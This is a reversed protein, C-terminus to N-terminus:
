KVVVIGTTGPNYRDAYHYTGPATFLVSVTSPDAYPFGGGTFSPTGVSVLDHLDYDFELTWTMRRGVPITDVAPNSGNQSSIFALGSSTRLVVDFTAEEITLKFDASAGVGPLAARVAANGLAGTPTLSSYSLGEPNTAGGMTLFAVPGNRITWTVAQGQVPNGYHDKVVAVLSAPHNVPFTQGNGNYAEIAVAPGPAALANFHVLSAPVGRITADAEVRGAVTGLTWAASAVGDKDTISQTPTLSGATTHWNVTVGVKPVGASDVKVRLPLPLGTGVLGAQGNTAAVVTATLPPALAPGSPDSCGELGLAGAALWVAGAIVTRSLANALGPRATPM